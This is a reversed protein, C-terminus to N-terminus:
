QLLINTELDFSLAVTSDIVALEWSIPLMKGAGIWMSMQEDKAKTAAFQILLYSNTAVHKGEVLSASTPLKLSWECGWKVRAFARINCCMKIMGKWENTFICCTSYERLHFSTAHVPLWSTVVRKELYHSYTSTLTFQNIRSIANSYCTWLM